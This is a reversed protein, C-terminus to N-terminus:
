WTSKRSTMLRKLEAKNLTSYNITESDSTAKTPGIKVAHMQKPMTKNITYKGNNLDLDVEYGVLKEFSNKWENTYLTSDKKSFTETYYAGLEEFTEVAHDYIKKSCETAGCHLDYVRGDIGISSILKMFAISLGVQKVEAGHHAYYAAKEYMLWLTYDQGKEALTLASKFTYSRCADLSYLSDFDKGRTSKILILFYLNMLKTMENRLTESDDGLNLYQAILVVYLKCIRDSLKNFIDNDSMWIAGLDDIMLDYLDGREQRILIAGISELDQSYETFHSDVRNLLETYRAMVKRFTSVDDVELANSAIRILLDHRTSLPSLLSSDYEQMVTGHQLCVDEALKAIPNNNRGISYGSRKVKKKNDKGAITKNHLTIWANIIKIKLRGIKVNLKDTYEFKSIMRFTSLSRLSVGLYCASFIVVLFPSLSSVLYLNDAYSVYPMHLYIYPCVLGITVGLVAYTLMSTYQIRKLKNYKDIQYLLFVLGITAILVSVNIGLVSRLYEAKSDADLGLLAKQAAEFQNM